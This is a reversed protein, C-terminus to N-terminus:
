AVLPVLRITHGVQHESVPQDQPEWNQLHEWGVLPQAAQHMAVGSFLDGILISTKDINTNLEVMYESHYGIM